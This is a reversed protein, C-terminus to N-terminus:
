KPGVTGPVPGGVRTVTAMERLATKAVKGNANLPLGDVVLVERPVMHKPLHRRCDGLVDEPTVRSSSCATVFLMIAEGAELDPIGIAAASVLNENRLVAAEIEQSSVRYGWSKIFDDRRDVVYIYGDEDVTALDGTRLGFPTFKVASGEPDDFYGPSINRGQAYIEGREGPAVPRGQDDLVRLRVGPIGRGISGAKSQLQEPPVYSLRATAETQGYMIFLHAANRAALLEEVLIPPLKGGAQQILRLSPLERRAFSTARLLLQFSSPVGALVTCGEREMVDLATEPFAFSNHLVVRGGVRLHTHMLSAGYCYFFPLIVLVRDDARLHLYEIISDTNAQLNQHTVRVAKPRSTTGSTFMLVADADPDCEAPPPWSMAVDAHDADAHGTDAQSADAQGTGAAATTIEDTLVTAVTRLAGQFRRRLRRDALVVRCGVQELNRQADDATLKESLPVAVLELKMVALYSAIWFLSNPALIGVRSGPPLELESLARLLRAAAARLEAYSYQCAGEVVAVDDDGGAALLYDSTNLM